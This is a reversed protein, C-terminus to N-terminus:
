CQFVHIFWAVSPSVSWSVCGYVACAQMLINHARRSRRLEDSVGYLMFKNSSVQVDNRGENGRPIPAQKCGFSCSTCWRKSRSSPIDDEHYQPNSQYRHKLYLLSSVVENELKETLNKSFTSSKSTAAVLVHSM